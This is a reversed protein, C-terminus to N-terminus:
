GRDKLQKYFAKLIGKDGVGPAEYYVRAVESQAEPPLTGFVPDERCQDAFNRGLEDTVAQGVRRVDGLLRAWDNVVPPPSSKPRDVRVYSDGRSPQGEQTEMSRAPATGRDSHIRIVKANGKPGINHPGAM